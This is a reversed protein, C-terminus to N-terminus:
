PPAQVPGMRRHYTNREVCPLQDLFASICGV